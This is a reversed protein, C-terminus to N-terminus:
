FFTYGVSFISANYGPNFDSTNFNSIHFYRWGLTLARRANEKNTVIHVGGGFDGTFNYSTAEPVPMKQNFFIMGAGVQAFPKIRSRPKFIFRFNVPQFGAGYANKRITKSEQPTATESVFKPNKVENNFAVAIPTVEFFYQTTINKATGINRLFRINLMGFSRGDTNYEKRGSFFLPQMPAFSSAIEINRQGRKLTLKNARNSEEKEATEEKDDKIEDKKDSNEVTKEEKLDNTNSVDQANVSLNSSIFGCLILSFIFLFKRM